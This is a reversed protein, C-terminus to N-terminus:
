LEEIKYVLKCFNRSLQNDLKQIYNLTKSLDDFECEYMMPENDTTKMLQQTEKDVFWWKLKNRKM